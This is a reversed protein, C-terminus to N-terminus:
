QSSSARQWRESSRSSSTDRSASTTHRAIREKLRLADRVAHAAQDNDFYVYIARLTESWSLIREAWQAIARDDYSGQYAHVSPGHLRVYVFDSTLVAPSEFGRIDYLCVAARHKRLLAYIEEDHWTPERLEFAYRRRKPLARLFAELREANKKWAPPFQFVIPGLKSRLGRIREFYRALAPEPDTLKKMHTIFRSGKAAFRFNAPTQRRWSEVAALSPLRYFTTNLEVTDFDRLYFGLMDAERLGAPYYPGKWHKYHWGSCGIRIEAM